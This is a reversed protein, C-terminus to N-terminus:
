VARGPCRLDPVEHGLFGSSRFMRGIMVGVVMLTSGAVRAWPPAGPTGTTGRLARQDPAGLAFRRPCRLAPAQRKM